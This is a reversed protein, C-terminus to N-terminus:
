ASAKSKLFNPVYDRPIKNRFFQNLGDQNFNDRGLITAIDTSLANYIDSYVFTGANTERIFDEFVNEQKQCELDSRTSYWLKASDLLMFLPELYKSAARSKLDERLLFRIFKYKDSAELKM